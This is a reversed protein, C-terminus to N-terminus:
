FDPAVRFKAQRRLSFGLGRLRVEDKYSRNGIALYKQKCQSAGQLYLYPIGNQLMKYIGQLGFIVTIEPM